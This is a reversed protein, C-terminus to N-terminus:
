HYVVILVSFMLKVNRLRHILVSVIVRHRHFKIAIVEGKSDCCTGQFAEITHIVIKKSDKIYTSHIFFLIEFLKNKKKANEDM